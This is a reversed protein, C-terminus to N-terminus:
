QFSQIMSRGTMVQPQELSWLSLFTPAVDCLKGGSRLKAETHMPDILLFPVPLLTHATMPRGEEDQMMECNGHDATLIAFASHSEVWEIIKGLCTDIVELSKVAASYIGTHGLMDPNAFNVVVFRYDGTQLEGLLKETVSLASMEPKLDYTKVERPSPVLIRKEGDFPVEEGGNFFYTVHAYKETEAIRLQNWQHQSVIEGLTLPVKAKEFACPLNLTAEYPSMCVFGSLSPFKKRPFFAFENQTLARTLQRARDARFNFFLIGDGDQIGRYGKAVAPVIFEDSHNNQYEEFIYDCPESFSNQAKGEVIAQYAKETRDWRSDRDMAYFRGSVTAIEGVGLDRCFSELENVFKKASTPSTDRGDTFVHIKVDFLGVQKSWQLLAYLHSLHSHVGGDSVLGMLHLVSGRGSVKLKQALQNFAPNKFFTKDEIAQSILSFDQYVVRGAGLNLHGVESNGMFGKPLGVNQESAQLQSHPYKQLLRRYHPMKAGEVANARTEPNIGFGDLIILLGARSKADGQVM